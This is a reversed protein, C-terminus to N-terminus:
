CLNKHRYITTINDKWNALSDYCSYEGQNLVTNEDIYIIGHNAIGGMISVILVDGHKYGM